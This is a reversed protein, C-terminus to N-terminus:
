VPSVRSVYEGASWLGTQGKEAPVQASRGAARLASNSRREPLDRAHAAPSPSSELGPLAPQVEPQLVSPLTSRSSCNYHQFVCLVHVCLAM